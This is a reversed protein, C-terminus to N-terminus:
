SGDMGEGFDHTWNLPDKHLMTKPIHFNNKTAEWGMHDRRFSLFFLVCRRFIFSFLDVLLLTTIWIWISNEGNKNSWKMLPFPWHNKEKEENTKEKTWLPLIILLETMVWWGFSFCCSMLQTRAIITSAAAEIRREKFNCAIFLLVFCLRFSSIDSIEYGHASRLHDRM